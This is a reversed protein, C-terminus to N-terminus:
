PIPWVISDFAPSAETSSRGDESGALPRRCAKCAM